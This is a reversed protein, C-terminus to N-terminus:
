RKTRASLSKGQKTKLLEPHNSVKEDFLGKM